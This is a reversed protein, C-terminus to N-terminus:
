ESAHKRIEELDNTHQADKIINNHTDIEEQLKKSKENDTLETNKSKNKLWETINSLINLICTICSTILTTM